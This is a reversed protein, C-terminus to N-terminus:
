DLVDDNQNEECVNDLKCGSVDIEIEHVSINLGKVKCCNGDDTILPNGKFLM